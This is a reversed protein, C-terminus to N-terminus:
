FHVWVSFHARHLRLTTTLPLTWGLLSSGLTALLGVSLLLAPSERFLFSGVHAWPEPNQNTRPVPILEVWKDSAFDLYDNGERPQTGLM